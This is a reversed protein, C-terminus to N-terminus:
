MNKIYQYQEHPVVKKGLGTKGKRPKYAQLNQKEHTPKDCAKSILLEILTGEMEEKTCNLLFCFVDTMVKKPNVTLEEFRIVFIPIPCRPDLWYEHFKLWYLSENDLFEYYIEKVKEFEDEAISENHTTTGVMNFLSLVADFPNRVVLVCKQPQFKKPGFRDPFHTKVIWVKDDSEGEGTFGSDVLDKVLKKTRNSDSGTKIRSIEEFYKRM